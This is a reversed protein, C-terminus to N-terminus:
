KRAINIMTVKNSSDTQADVFGDQTVSLKVAPFVEGTFKGEKNWFRLHIVAVPHDEAKVNNWKELKSALHESVIVIEYGDQRERSFVAQVKRGQQGEVNIFGKSMSRLLAMGEDTSKKFTDILQLRESESTRSVIRINLRGSSGALGESAIVTATYIEPDQALAHPIVVACCTLVVLALVIRKRM